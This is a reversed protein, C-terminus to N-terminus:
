QIGLSVLFRKTETKTLTRATDKKLNGLVINMIRIRKLSMTRYGLAALMRRIQHKKGETLVIELTKESRKKAKAPKTVYGEINVGKALKRIDREKIEKDTRVVYEREHGSEPSLLPETIRGDNTLLILGESDKDLRGVPFLDKRQLRHIAGQIDAEQENSAHTAIGRPKYYAMYVYTKGARKVEVLDKAGVMDGLVAKRGNIFVKGKEILTDAERRTGYQRYALYKNIRIPFIIEKM